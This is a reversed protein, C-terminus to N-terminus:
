TLRHVEFARNESVNLYTGLDDFGTMWRGFLSNMSLTTLRSYNSRGTEHACVNLRYLLARTLYQM